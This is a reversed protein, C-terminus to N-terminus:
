RLVLGVQLYCIYLPNDEIRGGDLPETAMGRIREKLAKRDGNLEICDRLNRGCPRSCWYCTELGVTASKDRSSERDAVQEAWLKRLVPWMPSSPECKRM